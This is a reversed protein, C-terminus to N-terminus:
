RPPSNPKLNRTRFNPVAATKMKRTRSVAPAIAPFSLASIVHLPSLLVVASGEARVQAGLAAVVSERADPSHIELRSGAPLQAAALGSLLPPLVLEAYRRVLDPNSISGELARWLNQRSTDLLRAAHPILPYRVPLETSQPQMPLLTNTGQEM